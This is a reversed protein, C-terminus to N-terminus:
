CEVRLPLTWGWRQKAQRRVREEDIVRAQQFPLLLLLQQSLQLPLLQLLQMPQTQLLYHFLPLSNLHQVFDGYVVEIEEEKKKMMKKISVKEAEPCDEEQEVQMLQHFNVLLLLFHRNM